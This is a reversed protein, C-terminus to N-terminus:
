KKQFYSQHAGTSSMVQIEYTKGSQTSGSDFSIQQLTKAPIPNTGTLDTRDITIPTFSSCDKCTLVINDIRTQLTGSNYIWVTIENASPHDFAVNVLVFRDSTYNGIGTIVQAYSQTASGVGSNAFGWLGLGLTITIALIITTSIVPSIGSRSKKRLSSLKVSNSDDNSFPSRIKSTFFFSTLTLQRM